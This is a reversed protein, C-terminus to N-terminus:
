GSKKLFPYLGGEKALALSHRYFICIHFNQFETARRYARDLAHRTDFLYYLTTVFGDNDDNRSQAPNGVAEDLGGTHSGFPAIGIFGAEQRNDFPVFRHHLARDVRRFLGPQQFEDVRQEALQAVDELPYRKDFVERGLSEVRNHAIALAKRREDHAPDDLARNMVIGTEEDLGASLIALVNDIEAIGICPYLTAKGPQGPHSHYGSKDSRIVRCAIHGIQPPAPRVIRRSDQSRSETGRLELNPGIDVAKHRGVGPYDVGGIDDLVERKGLRHLQAIEPRLNDIRRRNIRHEVLINRDTDSIREVRRSGSSENRGVMRMEFPLGDFTDRRDVVRAEDGERAHAHHPYDADVRAYEMHQGLRTDTNKQNRLGRRLVVGGKGHAVGVGIHGHPHQAILELFLHSHAFDTGDFGLLFQGGHSDHALIHFMGGANRTFQEIHQAAVTDIYNGTGLARRLGVNRKNDGTLTQALGEIDYVIRKKEGLRLHEIEKHGPHSGHPAVQQPLNAFLLLPQELGLRQLQAQHTNGIRAFAEEIALTDVDLMTDLQEVAKTRGSRGLPEFVLNDAHVDEVRDKDVAGGTGVDGREVPRQEVM